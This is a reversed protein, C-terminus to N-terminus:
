RQLMPMLEYKPDYDVLKPTQSDQLKATLITLVRAAEDPNGARLLDLAHALAAIDDTRDTYLLTKQQMM